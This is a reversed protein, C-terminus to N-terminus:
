KKSKVDKFLNDIQKIEITEEINFVYYPTFKKTKSNLRNLRVSKNKPYPFRGKKKWQESTGWVKNKWGWKDIEKDLITLNKGKMEKIYVNYHKYKSQINNM